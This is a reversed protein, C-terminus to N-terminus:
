RLAVVARKGAEIGGRIARDGSGSQSSVGLVRDRLNRDVGEGNAANRLSGGAGDVVVERLDHRAQKGRVEDALLGHEAAPPSQEAVVVVEVGAILGAERLRQRHDDGVVVAHCEDGIQGIRDRVRTRRLCGREAEGEADDGRGVAFGRVVVAPLDAPLVVEAM